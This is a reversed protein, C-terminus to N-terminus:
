PQYDHPRGWWKCVYLLSHSGPQGILIDLEGSLAKARLGHSMFLALLNKELPQQPQRSLLTGTENKRLHHGTLLQGFSIEAPPCINFAGSDIQDSIKLWRSLSWM